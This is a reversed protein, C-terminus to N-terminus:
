GSSLKDIGTPYRIFFGSGSESDIVLFQLQTVLIKCGVLQKPESADLEKLQQLVYRGDM